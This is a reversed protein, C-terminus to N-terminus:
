PIKDLFFLPIAYIKEEGDSLVNGYALCGMVEIFEYLVGENYIGYDDVFSVKIPIDTFENIKEENRIVKSWLIDWEGEGAVRAKVYSPDTGLIRLDIDFIYYGTDNVLLYLKDGSKKSEVTHLGISDLNANKYRKMKEQHWKYIYRAKDKGIFGMAQEYSYGYFPNDSIYRIPRKLNYLVKYLYDRYERM